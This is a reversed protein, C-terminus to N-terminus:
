LFQVPLPSRNPLTMQRHRLLPLPFTWHPAKRKRPCCWILVTLPLIWLMVTKPVMGLPPFSPPATSASFPPLNRPIQLQLSPLPNLSSDPFPPFSFLFSLMLWLHLSRLRFCRWIFLYFYLPYLFFLFNPLLTAKLFAFKYRCRWDNKAKGTAYIQVM